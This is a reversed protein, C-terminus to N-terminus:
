ERTELPVVGFITCFSFCISKIPYPAINISLKVPTIANIAATIKVGQNYKAILEGVPNKPCSKILAVSAILFKPKTIVGSSIEFKALLMPSSLMRERM